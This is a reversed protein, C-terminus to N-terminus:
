AAQTELHYLVRKKHVLKSFDREKEDLYATVHDFMFHFTDSIDPEIGRKHQEQDLLPRWAEITSAYGAIAALARTLNVKRKRDRILWKRDLTISSLSSSGSAATSSADTVGYMEEDEVGVAVDAYAGQLCRWAPHVPWRARNSDETPVVYRLWGDPLGDEGGGVHGVAYTWLDALYTSLAYVSEIGFECFAQRTFRVELRWVDAEGDWVPVGQEDSVARWLDHFWVKTPSQYKIEDSKDYILASVASTHLGFPLGTVRGWRDYVTDPGNLLTGDAKEPHEATKVSRYVFHQKVNELGINWGTFDLALDAKSVQFTIYEGYFAYLFTTTNVIATDVDGCEWLYESSVRMQGVLGTKKGRGVALTFKDCTLIWKFAGQGGKDKMLLNRGEFTWRTPVLEERQQACEKYLDLEEQLGQDLEQRIPKFEILGKEAAPYINYVLTDVGRGLIHLSADDNERM